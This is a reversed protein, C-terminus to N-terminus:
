LSKYNNHKEVAEKIENFSRIYRRGDEYQLSRPSIIESIENFNYINNDFFLKLLRPYYTFSGEVLDEIDYYGIFKDQNEKLLNLSEELEDKSSNIVYGSNLIKFVLDLNSGYKNYITKISDESRHFIEHLKIAERKSHIFEASVHLNDYDHVNRIFEILNSMYKNIDSLNKITFQNGDYLTSYYRMKTFIDGNQRANKIIKIAKKKAEQKLSDKMRLNGNKDYDYLDEGASLLWLQDLEEPNISMKLLEDRLRGIYPTLHYGNIKEKSYNRYGEYDDVDIDDEIPLLDEVQQRSEQDVNYVTIAGDSNFRMYDEYDKIDNYNKFGQDITDSCYNYKVLNVFADYVDKDVISLIEGLYNYNHFLQGTKDEIANLRSDLKDKTINIKGKTILDNLTSRKYIPAQRSFQDYQINPMKEYHEKKLLYKFALEGVRGLMVAIENKRGQLIKDEIENTSKTKAIDELLTLVNQYLGICGYYEYEIDDVITKEM